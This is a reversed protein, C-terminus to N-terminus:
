IKQQESKIPQYKPNNERLRYYEAARREERTLYKDVLAREGMKRRNTRKQAYM